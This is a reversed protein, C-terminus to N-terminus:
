TTRFQAPTKGTWRKFAKSFASEDSFGLQEAVEGPREGRGLAQEAMNQLLADRLLKFSTGEESLKRVLHRGSMNLKEGTKEKGWHPHQRLLDRVQASLSQSGLQELVQDALTRLHQCLAPNAHILPLQLDSAPIWLTNRDRNFEVPVGLRQTYRAADDLAGHALSIGLPHLREGTTWRSLNLLSAMVAEVREAQRTHFHPRYDIACREGEVRYDFDGGEGVIPHYDLLSDLAEAVTECSMLVMGVTDLHGVQIELGLQLGVLPDSAQQCFTEWIRDQLELDVRPRDAFAEQLDDPLAFGLRRAAQSIAQTFRVTVTPTHPM